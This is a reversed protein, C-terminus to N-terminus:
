HTVTVYTAGAKTGPMNFSHISELSKQWSPLVPLSTVGVFSQPFFSSLSLDFISHTHSPALEYSSYLFTSLLCWSPLTRRPLSSSYGRQPTLCNPISIDTDPASSSPASHPPYLKHHIVQTRSPLTSALFCVWQHHMLEGASQAWRLNSQTTEKQM